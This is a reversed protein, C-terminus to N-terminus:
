TMDTWDIGSNTRYRDHEEPNYDEFWGEINAGSYVTDEDDCDYEPYIGYSEAHDVAALWIAQNIEDDTWSKPVIWFEHSDMGCYGTQLEVYIKRTETNM